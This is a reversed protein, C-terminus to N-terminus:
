KAGAAEESALKTEARDLVRQGSLSHLYDPAGEFTDDLHGM